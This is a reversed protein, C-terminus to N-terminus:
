RGVAERSAQAWRAFVADNELRALLPRAAAANRRRLYHDAVLVLVKTRDLGSLRPSDLWEVLDALDGASCRDRAVMEVAALVRQTAFDIPVSHEGGAPPRAPPLETGLIRNFHRFGAYLLPSPHAGRHLTFDNLNFAICATVLRALPRDFDVLVALAGQLRDVYERYPVGDTHDGDKAAVAHVYGLLADAYDRGTALRDVAQWFRRGIGKPAGDPAFQTVFARDIEDLDAVDPIAVTVTYEVATRGDQSELQVYYRGNGATLRRALDQIRVSEPASGNESLRAWVAHSIRIDKALWLQRVVVLSPLLAGRYRMIPISVPHAAAIHAEEDIEAGFEADCYPCSWPKLGVPALTDRLVLSTSERELIFGLTPM